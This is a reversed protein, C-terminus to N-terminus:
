SNPTLNCSGFLTEKLHFTFKNQYSVMMEPSVYAGVGIVNNTNIDPPTGITALAPGNNGASALWVVGYKEIVQFYPFNYTLKFV